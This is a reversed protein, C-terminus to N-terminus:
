QDFGVTKRIIYTPLNRIEQYSRFVYIVIISSSIMQIMGIILVSMLIATLGPITAGAIFKWYLVFISYPVALVTVCVSMFVVLAVPIPSYALLGDIALQFMRSLTYSADGAHRSDAKFEIAVQRFGVWKVLGRYFRKTEKQDRLIQVIRKDVLRFDSTNPNIKVTAMLNIAFYFIKATIEKFFNQKKYKERITYVVDNGQKWLVLMQPILEPPHQLDGDMSIVADGNAFDYGAALAAQHGFNRSLVLCKIKKDNVQLAEIEAYSEDSSGDDIFVIEYDDPVDEFVKSLRDYLPRINKQENHVPIIVSIM